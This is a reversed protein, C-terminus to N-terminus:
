RGGVSATVMQGQSPIGSKAQEVLNDQAEINRIILKKSPEQLEGALMIEDLM